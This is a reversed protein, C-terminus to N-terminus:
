FITGKITQNTEGIDSSYRNRLNSTTPIAVITNTRTSNAGISLLAENATHIDSRSVENAKTALRKRIEKGM